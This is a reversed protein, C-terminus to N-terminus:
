KDLSGAATKQARRKRRTLDPKSSTYYTNGRRKIVVGNGLDIPTKASPDKLKVLAM